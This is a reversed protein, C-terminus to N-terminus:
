KRQFITGINEKQRSYQSKKKWVEDVFETLETKLIFEWDM